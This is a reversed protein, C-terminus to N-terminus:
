TLRWDRYPGVLRKRHAHAITGLVLILGEIDAPAAMMLWYAMRQPPLQLIMALHVVLPQLQLACVWLPWVRNARLATWMLGAFAASDLVLHGTDVQRFMVSGLIGHYAFDLLTAALLIQLVVREPGAGFRLVVFTMGSMALFFLLILM